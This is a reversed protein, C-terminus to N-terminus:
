RKGITRGVVAVVDFHGHRVDKTQRFALATGNGSVPTAGPEAVLNVPDLSGPSM